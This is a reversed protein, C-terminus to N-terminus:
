SQYLWEETGHAASGGNDEGTETSRVTSGLGTDTDTSHTNKSRIQDNLTLNSSEETFISELM